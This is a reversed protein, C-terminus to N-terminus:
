PLIEDINVATPKPNKDGRKWEASGTLDGSQPNARGSLSIRATVTIDAFGSLKRSPMVADQDTLLVDLPLDSVQFRKVALPPGSAPGAPEAFVFLSMEPNAKARLAADLTVHVRVGAGGTLVPAAAVAPTASGGAEVIAKDIIDRYTQPPDQALLAQWRQVALQKDGRQLAGLGGYWLAQPNRPDIQLAKELAPVAKSMFEDPYALYLAEGYGALVEADGDQSLTRAHTYADVADPYREMLVYAHALMVWGQLDNQGSTALRRSLQQVMQEVAAAGAQDVGEVGARWNGIDWYVLGSGLALLLAVGAAFSRQGRSTTAPKGATAAASGAAEAELDRRAARYDDEALWGAALDRDLEALQAKQSTVAASAGRGGSREAARWLPVAVCAAAMLVMLGALSLFIM